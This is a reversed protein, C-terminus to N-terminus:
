LSPHSLLSFLYLDGAVGYRKWYRKGGGVPLHGRPAASDFITDVYQSYRKWGTALCFRNWVEEDYTGNPAGGCELYMSKQVSFGFKGDSHRVWLSDITKLVNPPFNTMNEDFWRGFRKGVTAIMLRYTEDDAEQWQHNSLYEELVSYPNNQTQGILIRIEPSLFDKIKKPKCDSIGWELRSFAYKDALGERFSVSHFDNLFLLDDPVSEVGPLLVPIPRINHRICQQTFDRLESARWRGAQGEGLFIAATKIQDIACQLENQFQTRQTGPALEEEDLWPRFGRAVLEGYIKKILFKDQSRHALFVDFKQKKSTQSQESDELNPQIGSIGWCLHSFPDSAKDRFDVWMYKRLYIKLYFPLEISDIRKESPFDELLVPIIQYGRSVFEILCSDIEYQQWPGVGEKGVFIAVTKIQEIQKGLENLWHSGPRIEWKDLWPKIGAKQLQKAISIVSPKDQSNHCLFVDFRKEVM